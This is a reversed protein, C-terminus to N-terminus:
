IRLRLNEEAFATSHACSDLALSGHDVQPSLWQSYYTSVDKTLALVTSKVLVASLPAMPEAQTLGAGDNVPLTALDAAAFTPRSQGAEREGVLADRGVVVCVATAM